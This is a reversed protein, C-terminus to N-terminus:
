LPKTNPQNSVRVDRDFSGGAAASLADASTFLVAINPMPSSRSRQAPDAPDRSSQQVDAKAPRIQLSTEIKVETAVPPTMIIAPLRVPPADIPVPEQLGPDSM